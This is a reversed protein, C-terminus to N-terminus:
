PWRIVKWPGFLSSKPSNPAEFRSLQSMFHGKPLEKPLGSTWFHVLSTELCLAFKLLEPNEALFKASFGLFNAPNLGWSGWSKPHISFPNITVSTVNTQSKAVTRQLIDECTAQKLPHMTVSTANTQSKAVTRRLIHGWIAQELPHM